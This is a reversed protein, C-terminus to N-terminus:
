INFELPILIHYLGSDLLGTVDKPIGCESSNVGEYFTAGLIASIKQEWGSMCLHKRQQAEEPRLFSKRIILLMKRPITNITLGVKKGNRWLALVLANLESSLREWLKRQVAKGTPGSLKGKAFSEHNEMFSVLVQWHSGNMKFAM